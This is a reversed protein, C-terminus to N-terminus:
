ETECVERKFIFYEGLALMIWYNAAPNKGANHLATIADDRRVIFGGTNSNGIGMGLPPNARLQADTPTLIKLGVWEKRIELPAFGPPIATITIYLVERIEYQAEPVRLNALSQVVHTVDTSDYDRLATLVPQPGLDEWQCDGLKQFLHSPM